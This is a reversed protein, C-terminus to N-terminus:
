FLHSGVETGRARNEWEGDATMMTRRTDQERSASSGRRKREDMKRENSSLCVGSPFVASRISIDKYGYVAPFYFNVKHYYM